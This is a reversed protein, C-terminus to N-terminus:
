LYILGRRYEVDVPYKTGGLWDLWYEGYNYNAYKHHLLHHNGILWVFRGDHRMMGRVNLLAVIWVMETWTYTIWIMPAVAGIGQFLSEFWHGVYTDLWQPEAKTHHERHIPWLLKKHLLIHSVYFWIDYSLVSLIINLM